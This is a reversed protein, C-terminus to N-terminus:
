SANRMLVYELMASDMAEMRWYVYLYKDNMHWYELIMHSGIGKWRLRLEVTLPSAAFGM